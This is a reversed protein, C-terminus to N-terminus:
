YDNVFINLYGDYLELINASKSLTKYNCLISKNDWDKKEFVIYM